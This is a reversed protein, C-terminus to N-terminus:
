MGEPLKNNSREKVLGRLLILYNIADGIKEDWQELSSSPLPQHIVKQPKTETSCRPCGNVYEAYRTKCWVNTCIWELPTLKSIDNVMDLISVIHKMWTGVLAAEPTCGLAAAIRKFNSLRDGGRAYEKGKRILTKTILKEKVYEVIENFEETKM